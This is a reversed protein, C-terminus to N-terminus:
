GALRSKGKNHLLRTRNPLPRYSICAGAPGPQNLCTLTQPLKADIPAKPALAKALLISYRPTQSDRLSLRRTAPAVLVSEIMEFHVDEVTHEGGHNTGVRNDDRRLVHTRLRSRSNTGM